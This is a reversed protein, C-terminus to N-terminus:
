LYKIYTNDLNIHKLSKCESLELPLFQIPNDNLILQELQQFKNIEKPLTELQNFGFNM